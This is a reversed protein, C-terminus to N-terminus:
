QIFRTVPLRLIAEGERPGLFCLTVPSHIIRCFYERKISARKREKVLPQFVKSRTAMLHRMATTPAEYGYIIM